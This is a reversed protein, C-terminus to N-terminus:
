KSLSYRALSFGSQYQRRDIFELPRKTTPEAFIPKGCGMLFPNVKLVLEDIWDILSSALRPGGCLWIGKGDEHKLSRVVEEAGSRVLKLEESPPEPLSSSFVFQRLHRYPSVVGTQLGLEYTRRGMLVTDFHKLEDAVPFHERLHTPMTEPYMELLDAVHDGEFDFDEIAGDPRSIFGDFSTAILYTLKRM